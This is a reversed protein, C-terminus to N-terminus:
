IFVLFSANSIIMFNLSHQQPKRKKEQLSRVNAINVVTGFTSPHNKGLIREKAKLAKEYYEVLAKEFNKLRSYAAGLNNVTGLTSTGGGWSRM